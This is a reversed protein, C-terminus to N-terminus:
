YDLLQVHHGAYRLSYQTYLLLVPHILVPSNHTAHKWCSATSLTFSSSPTSSFLHTTLPMNGAQPQVSHLPPPSPPHPCTLQSHCTGLRLSYNTYLLLVLHILVHSNHNAHEWGSATSLTSSSSRTSSSLHTTLPMNGAQPQVSHLPPPSPQHPCNLQSHCTGLRLSYNTYLLLVLHILVISNHTAHEWDSATTLTSSFSRTSSSLHTTLPM